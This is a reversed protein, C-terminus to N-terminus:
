IKAISQRKMLRSKMRISREEPPLVDALMRFLLEAACEGMKESATSLAALPVYQLELSPDDTMSVLSLDRPLNLHARMAAGYLGLVRVHDYCIVASPDFTRRIENLYEDPSLTDELNEPPLPLRNKRLLARFTEERLGASYHQHRKGTDRHAGYFAIRRHGCSLLHRVVTEMNAAEDIQVSAGGPRCIGNLVVYPIEREELFGLFSPDSIDFLLAGAVPFPLTYTDKRYLSVYKGTELFGRGRIANIFAIKMQMLIYSNNSLPDFIAFINSDEARMIRLFPNPRYGYRSALTRIKEELERCVSFGKQRGNLVRSVTSPSCGAEQAINKLTGPQFKKESM